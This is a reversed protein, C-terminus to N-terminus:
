PSPNAATPLPMPTTDYFALEPIASSTATSGTGGTASSDEQAALQAALIAEYKANYQDYLPDTKLIPKKYDVQADLPLVNVPDRTLFDVNGASVVVGSNLPLAQLPGRGSQIDILGDAPAPPRIPIGLLQLFKLRNREPIRNARYLLNETLAAFLQIITIGPDSD